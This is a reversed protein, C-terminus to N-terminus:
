TGSASSDLIRLINPKERKEMWSALRDLHRLGLPFASSHKPFLGYKSPGYKKERRCDLVFCYTTVWKFQFFSVLGFVTLGLAVLLVKWLAGEKILNPVFAYLGSAAAFGVAVAAVAVMMLITYWDESPRRLFPPCYVIGSVMRIAGAIDKGVAKGAQIYHERIAAMEELMLIKRTRLETYMGLLFIGILFFVLAAVGMFFARPAQSIWLKMLRFTDSVAIYYIGSMVALFVALYFKIIDLLKAEIHAFYAATTQFESQLLTDPQSDSAMRGDEGEKRDFILALKKNSFDMDLEHTIFALVSLKSRPDADGPWDPTFRGLHWYIADTIADVVNKPVDHHAAVEKWKGAATRHHTYERWHKKADETKFTDSLITAVYVIDRSDPLPDAKEDTLSPYMRIKRDIGVCCEVTNLLIGGLGTQWIPHTIGSSSAAAFFFELPTTRELYDILAERLAASKIESICLREFEAFRKDLVSNWAGKERISAKVSELM